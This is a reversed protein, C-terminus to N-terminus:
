VVVCPAATGNNRKEIDVVRQHTSRADIVHASAGVAAAIHLQAIQKTEGPSLGAKNRDALVQAVEIDHALLGEAKGDANRLYFDLLKGLLDEVGLNLRAQPGLANTEGALVNRHAVL